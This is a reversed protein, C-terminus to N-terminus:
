NAACFNEYRQAIDDGMEAVKQRDGECYCERNNRYVSNMAEGYSEGLSDAREWVPACRETLSSITREERRETETEESKQETEDKEQSSNARATPKVGVWRNESFIWFKCRSLGIGMEESTIVGRVAVRMNKRLERVADSSRPKSCSVSSFSYEGGRITISINKEDFMSDDISGIYGRLEIPQNMYKNEAMVSNAEFEEAIAEVGLSAIPQDLDLTRIRNQEAEEAAQEAQYEEAIERLEACGATLLLSGATLIGLVAKM